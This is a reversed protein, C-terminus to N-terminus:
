ACKQILRQAVFVHVNQDSVKVAKIEDELMIQLVQDDPDVLVEAKKILQQPLIIQNLNRDHKHEGIHCTEYADFLLVNGMHDICTLTGQFLRDTTTAIRMRRGLLAEITEVEPREREDEVLPELEPM